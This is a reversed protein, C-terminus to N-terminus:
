LRKVLYAQGNSNHFFLKDDDDRVENVFKYVGSCASIFGYDDFVVMGGPSLRDWVFRFADKASRYVDVDIHVLSFIKDAVQEGTEEPFVGQLIAFNDLGLDKKLFSIVIEESTDAHARDKYHEWASSKVVGEFTDALYITKAPLVQAFLGATGGRWVGVELLDGPIKGMQRAILYLSYCRLRDVLTNDCIKNYIESFAQDTLWPSDYPYSQLPRDDYRILGYGEEKLDNRLIDADVM